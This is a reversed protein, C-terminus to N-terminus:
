LNVGFNTRGTVTQFEDRDACKRIFATWVQWFILDTCICCLEVDIIRSQVFIYGTLRRVEKWLRRQLICRVQAQHRFCASTEVTRVTQSNVLEYFTNAACFVDSRDQGTIRTFFFLLCTHRKILIRCEWTAPDSHCWRKITLIYFKSITVVVVQVM